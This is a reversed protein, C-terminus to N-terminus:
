GGYDEEGMGGMGGREQGRRLLSQYERHFKAKLLTYRDWDSASIESLRAWAQGFMKRSSGWTMMGAEPRSISQFIQPTFMLEPLSRTRTRPEDMRRTGIVVHSAQLRLTVSVIETVNSWEDVRVVTSLEFRSRISGNDNYHLRFILDVTPTASNAVPVACRFRVVNIAYYPRTQVTCANNATGYFGKAAVFLPERASLQVRTNKSFTWVIAAPTTPAVEDVYFNVRYSASINSM